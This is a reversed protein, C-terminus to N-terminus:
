LVVQAILKQLSFPDFPTGLFSDAPDLRSRLLIQGVGLEHQTHNVLSSEHTCLIIKLRSEPVLFSYVLPM